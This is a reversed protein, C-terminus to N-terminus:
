ENNRGDNCASLLDDITDMTNEIATRLDYYPVDNYKEIFREWREIVESVKM